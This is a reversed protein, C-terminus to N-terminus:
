ASAATSFFSVKEVTIAGSELMAAAIPLFADIKEARDIIEVVVPRAETRFQFFRTKLSAPGYGGIGRLVTGGALQMEHAKRLLADYLPLAGHADDESLYLRLLSAETLEM